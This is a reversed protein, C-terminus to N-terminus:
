PRTDRRRMQVIARLEGLAREFDDNLVVHDYEGQHSIEEAAARM